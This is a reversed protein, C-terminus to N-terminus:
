SRVNVKSASIWRNRRRITLDIVLGGSKKKKTHYWRLETANYHL